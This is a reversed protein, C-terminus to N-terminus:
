NMTRGLVTGLEELATVPALCQFGQCIYAVAEGKPAFEALVPPLDSADSPIAVCLRHPNFGTQCATQWQALHAADARIIVVQPPAADEELAMLLSGHGYPLQNVSVWSAKLTREASELYRQEGILHGLRALAFAAVGNGSPTAEDMFPRPRSILAEHDHATFFFGGREKDEFANLLVDALEIAFQLDESNWRAQLLTLTADLVFAYDDLYANLHAKGDKYTALLRGDRWMTQRIFHLARSASDLYEPQAFVQGALAMGKIMLGNWATLIKDDRNPRIRQERTQFLTQRAQDLRERAVEESIQFQEALTALELYAHLHWHGEFNAERDLGFCAAFIEFQEPPLLKQVEEVSWVYFKGEEGESDADLTSYYGGEPSQMERMVWNATELVVQKFLPDPLVQWAESYTCLFPGNDYLMKEFHPIMWKEDVSYRYFGGGLQDYLGGLAMQRLTFLAMELGDKDHTKPTATAQYHRLLRDISTLHPFKPAKTFGGYKHDFSDGIQKRAENLPSTTLMVGAQSGSSLDLRNYAEAIVSNQQQIQERNTTYLQNIKLLLEPLAPLGHRPEPPFYTGGFFPHLDDPDLFMTLPWGGTRQTLMQHGLQYIKDLDPREERDVKINIFHENMLDAIEENEFCEHAMVHCWHCASYGISLLIPKNETKALQLAQEGWPYWHVPNYAHQLLYPSTEEILANPTTSEAASSM